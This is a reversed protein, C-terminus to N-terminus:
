NDKKQNNNDQQGAGHLSGNNQQPQVNPNMNAQQQMQRQLMQQEKKRKKRKYIKRIVLVIVAIILGWVVLYPLCIVLGIFFERIGKVVEKVSNIFGGTMRKWASEEKPETIEKVETVYLKITTYDVQNDYTRLASEYQGIEYRVQSLREELSIIEEVTEAKELIAMLREQEVQLAKKHSEVDVYSLTIDETNESKRTVNVRDSLGSLFEDARDKPIRIYLQGSRNMYSSYISSGETSSYEIYGDLKKVNEEIFAMVEEYELTEVNMDITRILKRQQNKSESKGSDTSVSSGGMGEVMSDESIDEEWDNEVYMDNVFTDEATGKSETTYNTSASGCGMCLVAVLVALAMKRRKM